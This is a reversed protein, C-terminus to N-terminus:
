ENSAEYDKLILRIREDLLAPCTSSYRQKEELATMARHLLEEKSALSSELANLHDVAKHIGYQKGTRVDMLTLKRGPAIMLWPESEPRRYIQGDTDKVLTTRTTM